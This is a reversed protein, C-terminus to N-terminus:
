NYSNYNETLKLEKSIELWGLQKMSGEQESENTIVTCWLKLSSTIEIVTCPVPPLQEHYLIKGGILVIKGGIINTLIIELIMCNAIAM